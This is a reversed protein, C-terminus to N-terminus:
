VLRLYNSSKFKSKVQVKPSAKAGDYSKSKTVISTIGEKILKNIQDKSSSANNLAGNFKTSSIAMQNTVGNEVMIIEADKTGSIHLEKNVDNFSQKEQSMHTTMKTVLKHTTTVQSSTVTVKYNTTNMKLAIKKAAEELQKIKSPDTNKQNIRIKFKSVCNIQEETRDETVQRAFESRLNLNHDEIVTKTTGKKTFEQEFNKSEISNEAYDLEGSVVQIGNFKMSDSERLLADESKLVELLQPDKEDKTSSKIIEDVFVVQNNLSSQEDTLEIRTVEEGVLVKTVEDVKTINSDLADQSTEIYESEWMSSTQNMVEDEENGFDLDFDFEENLDLAVEEDVHKTVRNIIEMKRNYCTLYVQDMTNETPFYKNLYGVNDEAMRLYKPLTSIFNGEFLMNATFERHPAYIMLLSILETDIDSGDVSLDINGTESTPGYRLRGIFTNLNSANMPSATYTSFVNKLNQGPALYGPLLKDLLMHRIFVLNNKKNLPQNTAEVELCFDRLEDSIKGSGMNQVNITDNEGDELDDLILLFADLLAIYNSFKEASERAAAKAHSMNLNFVQIILEHANLKDYFPVVLEQFIAERTITLMVERDKNVEAQSDVLGIMDQNFKILMCFKFGPENKMEDSFEKITYDNARQAKESEFVQMFHECELELTNKMEPHNDMLVYIERFAFPYYQHSLVLASSDEGKQNMVIKFRYTLFYILNQVQRSDLKSFRMEKDPLANSFMVEYQSDVMKLYALLNAARESPTEFSFDNKAAFIRHELIAIYLNTYSEVLMEMKLPNAGQMDQSKTEEIFKGLLPLYEEIDDFINWTMMMRFNRIEVDVPNTSLLAFQQDINKLTENMDAYQLKATKGGIGSGVIRDIEPKFFHTIDLLMTHFREGNAVASRDDYITTNIDLTDQMIVKSQAKNHKMNTIVRKMFEFLNLRDDTAMKESLLFEFDPLPLKGAKCTLLIAEVYQMEMFNSKLKGFNGLFLENYKSKKWKNVNSTGEPVKLQTFAKYEMSFYKMLMRIPINQGKQTVKQMYAAKEKEYVGKSGSFDFNHSSFELNMNRELTYFKDDEAFIPNDGLLQQNFYKKHYRKVYKKGATSTNGALKYLRRVVYAYKPNRPDIRFFEEEPDEDIISNNRVRDLEGSDGPKPLDASETIILFLMYIYNETEEDLMNIEILQRLDGETSLGNLIRTIIHIINQGIPKGKMKPADDNLIQNLFIYIIQIARKARLQDPFEGTDKIRLNLYEIFFYYYTEELYKQRHSFVQRMSVFSTFEGIFELCNKADEIRIKDFKIREDVGDIQAIEIMENLNAETYFAWKGGNKKVFEAEPMVQIFEELKAADFNLKITDMNVAPVNSGLLQVLAQKSKVKPLVGNYAANVLKNCTGDDLWPFFVAWFEELVNDETYFVDDRQYEFAAIFILALYVVTEQRMMGYMQPGNVTLEGVINPLNEMWGELLSNDLTKFEEILSFQAEVLNSFENMTMWEGREQMWDAFRDESGFSSIIEKWVLNVMPSFRQDVFTTTYKNINLYQEKFTEVMQNTTEFWQALMKEASDAMDKFSEPPSSKMNTKFMRFYHDRQSTISYSMDFQNCYLFRQIFNEQILDEQSASGLNMLSFLLVIHLLYSFRSHMLM